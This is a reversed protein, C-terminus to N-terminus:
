TENNEAMRVFALNEGVIFIEFERAAMARLFAGSTRKGPMMWDHPEIFVAVAEDLWSLNSAFLDSEFGEIDVKVIFLKESGSRAVAEAVTVIPSGKDSRETQVAWGAGHSDQLTAFGPESGLAACLPFIQSNSAVNRALMEFNGHDPEIAVVAAKPFMKAFYLSAAGINAGADLVVPVEGATILRQYADHVRRNVAEIHALSYENNIFTQRITDMDSNHARLTVRGVGRLLATQAGNENIRGLHRLLTGFGFARVDAVNQKLRVFM